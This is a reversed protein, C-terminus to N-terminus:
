EFDYRIGFGPDDNLVFRAGTARPVNVIHQEMWDRYRTLYEAMPTIAEPESIIFHLNYINGAHPIIQAGYSEALGAIKKMPTIGGVWTADPQLITVGADLLRKFDFVHYHHEGASIPIEVKKTLRSYGEFDDPLLPEEIWALDYKELARIMKYAFNYNLSMWFDGALNVSYGVVDRIIKVLHLNKEVAYPDSPSAIFRMKMDTYGEELYHKAEAELNEDKDPHLHSAYARIQKRTSGGILRYVPIGLEKSYADYMLLNVASIAHLALGSRGNPLTIRYLFDWAKSIESVDFLNVYKSIGELYKWVPETVSIYSRIGDETEMKVFVIKTIMAAEAPSVEGIMDKYYDTPKTYPFVQQTVNEESIKELSKIKSM